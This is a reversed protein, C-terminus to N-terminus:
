GTEILNKRINLIYLTNQKQYIINIKYIDNIFCITITILPNDTHKHMVRDDNIEYDRETAFRSNDEPRFSILSTIENFNLFRTPPINLNKDLAKSTIPKPSVM